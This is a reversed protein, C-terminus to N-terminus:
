KAPRGGSYRRAIKDFGRDQSKHDMLAGSAKGARVSRVPQDPADRKTKKKTKKHATTKKMQIGSGYLTVEGRTASWM